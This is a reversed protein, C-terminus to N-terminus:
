PRSEQDATAPAGTGAHSDRPELTAGRLRYHAADRPATRASDWGPDALWLVAAGRSRVAAVANVLADWFAPPVGRLPYELLVLRPTGLLARVWEARRRDHPACLAPRVAPLEPLGLARALATAEELIEGVPRRTHHRQSLTVNENVNLNSIWGHGAFVRGIRARRRLTEEPPMAAWSAGLFSVTGTDPDLLGEALDALPLDERGPESDIWALDGPALRLSVPGIGAHLLPAPALSAQAFELLPPTPDLTMAAQPPAGNSM